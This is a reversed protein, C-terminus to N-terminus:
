QVFPLLSKGQVSVELLEDGPAGTSAKETNNTKDRCLSEVAKNIIYVLLDTDQIDPAIKVSLLCGCDIYQVTVLELKQPSYDVFLRTAIYQVCAIAVDVTRVPPKSLVIRNIKGDLKGAEHKHDKAILAYKIVRGGQQDTDSCDKHTSAIRLAEEIAKVTSSLGWAAQLEKAKAIVAEPLDVSTTKHAAKYRRQREANTSANKLKDSPTSKVAVDIEAKEDRTRESM